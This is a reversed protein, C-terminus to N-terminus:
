LPETQHKLVYVCLMISLDRYAYSDKWINMM